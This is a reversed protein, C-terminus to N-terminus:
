LEQGTPNVPYDATLNSPSEVRILMPATQITATGEGNLKPIAMMVQVTYDGGKSMDYVLSPELVFDLAVGPGIGRGRTISSPEHYPEAFDPKRYHARATFPALSGNGIRVAVNLRAAPYEDPILLPLAKDTMNRLHVVLYVSPCAPYSYQDLTASMQLGEVVGSTSGPGKVPVPQTPPALTQAGGPWKDAASLGHTVLTAASVCIAVIIARMAM